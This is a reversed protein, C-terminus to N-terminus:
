KKTEGGKKRFFFWYILFVVLAIIGITMLQKKNYNM